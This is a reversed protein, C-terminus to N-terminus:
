VLAVGSALVGNPFQRNMAIEMVSKWDECIPRLGVTHGVIKKTFWDLVVNIYVWGTEKVMIKTMDTGWLENPKIAKPKSRPTRSSRLAERRIV